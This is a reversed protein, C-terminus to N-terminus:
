FTTCLFQIKLNCRMFNVFVVRYLFLFIIIIESLYALGGNGRRDNTFYLLVYKNSTCLSILLWIRLKMKLDNSVNQLIGEAMNSFSLLLTPPFTTSETSDRVPTLPKNQCNKSYNFLFESYVMLFKPFTFRACLSGM